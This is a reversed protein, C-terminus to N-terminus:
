FSGLINSPAPFSSSVQVRSFHSLFVGFYVEGSESDRVRKPKILNLAAEADANIIPGLPAHQVPVPPDAAAAAHELRVLNRLLTNSVTAVKQKVSDPTREGPWLEQFSANIQKADQGSYLGFLLSKIQDDTFARGRGPGVGRAPTTPAGRAPPNPGTPYLTGRGRANRIQSILGRGRNPRAYPNGRDGPPPSDERTLDYADNDDNYDIFDDIAWPDAM